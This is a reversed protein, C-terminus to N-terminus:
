LVQAVARPHGQREDAARLFVRPRGRGAEATASQRGASRQGHDLVTGLMKAGRITIGTSDEDVIRAVLDEAQEGWNKAREAQPNIIVYTLFLDSKTAYDVYDVLAKAREARAQSVGRHGHAPRGAGLGCPGAFPGHLRLSVRAWAQLAKRRM